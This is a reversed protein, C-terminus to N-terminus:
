SMWAIEIAWIAWGFARYSLYKKQRRHTGCTGGIEDYANDCYCTYYKVNMVIINIPIWMRILSNILCRTVNFRTVEDSFLPETAPHLEEYKLTKLSKQKSAWMKSAAVRVFFSSFWSLPAVRSGRVHTACYLPSSTQINSCHNQVRGFKENRFM